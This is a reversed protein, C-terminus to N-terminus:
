SRKAVSVRANDTHMINNMKVLYLYLAANVEIHFKRKLSVNCPFDTIAGIPIENM